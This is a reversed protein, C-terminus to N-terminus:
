LAYLWWGLLLTFICYVVSAIGFGALGIFFANVGIMCPAIYWWLVSRLLQIQRDLRDLEIRCFEQVPADLSAPKRITRTRYMKYIVQLAWYVLWLASMSVVFNTAFIYRGFFIAVFVAAITEKVDRRFIQGWLRNVRHRTAAILQERQEKTAAAENTARWETDLDDLTM